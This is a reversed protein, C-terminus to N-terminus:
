KSVASLIHFRHSAFITEWPEYKDKAWPGMPLRLTFSEVDVYGAKELKERLLIETPTVRGSAVIAKRLLSSWRALPNDENL